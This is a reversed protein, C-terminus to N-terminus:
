MDQGGGIKICGGGVYVVAHLPETFTATFTHLRKIPIDLKYFSLRGAKYDLYVRVRHIPINALINTSQKNYKVLLGDGNWELCWSKENCGIESEEGTRAISPYCMGVRWHSSGGVYVDWYHRGSSFSQSSLVQPFIVEKYETPIDRHRFGDYCTSIITQCVRFRLLTHPRNCNKNSKHATKGDESIILYNHATNVDLLIDAPEPIYIGGYVGTIIDSLGTYLLQSIGVVDLGGWGRLLEDCREKDEEDSDENDFLDGKDSKQLFTLPDMMNCIEEIHYMKRSLEDKKLELVQILDSASFSDRLARRIIETLVRRELINLKRRIDRFLVDVRKTVNDASDQVEYKQLSKISGEMEERKKMLMQLANTLNEKRKESAEELAVVQHEQHDGHLKCSECLCASDEICYYELIKEHISCKRNKQPTTLDSLVHQSSKSHVRLHDDCLSAECHLCSKVAPVPSHICHTCFVQREEEPEMSQFNAMINCLTINRILEPREQFDARCSPCRYVGSGRQTDLVGEICHQCFNHGCRLTVPNTYINLCISCDLEKRADSFAM